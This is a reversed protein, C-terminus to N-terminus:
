QFINNLVAQFISPGNCLGFSMILYEYHGNYTRFAMKQVDPPHVRVQHYGATLNLKIFTARHLEDLM